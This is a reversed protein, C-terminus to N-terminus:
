IETQTIGGGRYIVPTILYCFWLISMFWIAGGFFFIKEINVPVWTKIMLLHLLFDGVSIEIKNFYTMIIIALCTVLFYLPYIRDLRKKYFGFVNRWNYVVQRKQNSYGIVFGSLILFFTVSLVGASIPYGMHYMILLSIIVFRLGYLANTNEKMM